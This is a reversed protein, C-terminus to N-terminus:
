GLCFTLDFIVLIEWGQFHNTTMPEFLFEFIGVGPVAFYNLHGVGPGFRNILDRGLLAFVGGGGGNFPANNIQIKTLFTSMVFKLPNFVEQNQFVQKNIFLAGLKHMTVM